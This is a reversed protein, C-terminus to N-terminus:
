CVCVFVNGFIYIDSVIHCICMFSHNVKMELWENYKRAAEEEKLEQASKVYKTEKEKQKEEKAKEKM